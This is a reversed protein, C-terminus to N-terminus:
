NKTDEIIQPIWYSFEAPYIGQQDSKKKFIHRFGLSCLTNKFRCEYIQFEFASKFLGEPM